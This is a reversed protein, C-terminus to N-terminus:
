CRWGEAMVSMPSLLVLVCDLLVLVDLMRMGTVESLDAKRDAKDHSARIALRHEIGM